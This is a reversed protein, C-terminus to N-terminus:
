SRKRRGSSSRPRTTSSSGGTSAPDPTPRSTSIGSTPESGSGGKPDSAVMAVTTIQQMAALDAIGMHLYLDRAAEETFGPDGKRISIVLIRKVGEMSLLLRDAEPTGILRKGQTSAALAKELLFQQQVYNFAGKAIAAQVVEFPDPFQADVWAQLEGFDAITLPHLLYDRGAVTLKRPQGTLSAVDHM